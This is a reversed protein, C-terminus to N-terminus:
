WPFGDTKYSPFVSTMMPVSPLLRPHTLALTYSVMPTSSRPMYELPYGPFKPSGTTEKDVVRFLRVPLGLLGPTLALTGSRQRAQLSSVFRLFLCPIPSWLVFPMSFSLQYDYGLMTGYFTPFHSGLSGSSPLRPRTYRTTPLFSPFSMSGVVRRLLCGAVPSLTAWSYAM